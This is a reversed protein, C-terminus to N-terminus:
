RRTAGAGREGAADRSAEATRERQAAAFCRVYWRRLHIRYAIAILRDGTMAMLGAYAEEDGQIAREVLTRDM